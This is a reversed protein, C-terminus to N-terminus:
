KALALDDLTLLGMSFIVRVAALLEDYNAITYNLRAEILQSQADLATISTEKGAKELRETAAVIEESIKLGNEMLAKNERSTKLQQFNLYLETEVQKKAADYQSLAADYNSTAAQSGYFTSLGDFLTWSSKLLLSWDRRTGVVGGADREYNYTAEIDITPWFTSRATDIGLKSSDVAIASAGLAASNKLAIELAAYVTKPVEPLEVDSKVSKSLIPRFKFLYMFQAISQDLQGQLQTKRQASLQLQSKAQLVELAIGKGKEVKANELKLLKKTLGEAQTALKVLETDRKVSFHANVGELLISKKTNELNLEAAEIQRAAIDYSATDRGGSYVNQTLTLTAKARTERQEDDGATRTSPSDIVERGTDSSFSLSPLFGSFAQKRGSAAADLAKEAAKIRPDSKLVSRLDQNLSPIGDSFVQPLKQGLVVQPTLLTFIIAYFINRM